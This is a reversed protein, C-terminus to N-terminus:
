SSPLSYAGRVVGDAEGDRVRNSDRPSGQQEQVSGPMLKPRLVRAGTSHKRQKM